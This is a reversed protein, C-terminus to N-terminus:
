EDRTAGGELPRQAIKNSDGPCPRGTVGAGLVLINADLHRRSCRRISDFALAARVGKVKNAAVSMGIGTRLSFAGTWKARTM